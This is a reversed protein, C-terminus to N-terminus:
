VKIDRAEKSERTDRTEGSEGLTGAHDVKDGLDRRLGKVGGPIELRGKVTYRVYSLISNCKM